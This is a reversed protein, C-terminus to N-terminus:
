WCESENNREMIEGISLLPGKQRFGNLPSDPGRKVHRM